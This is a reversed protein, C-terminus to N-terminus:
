KELLGRPQADPALHDGLAGRSGSCPDIRDRLAAAALTACAGRRASAAQAAGWSAAVGRQSRFAKRSRKPGSGAPAEASGRQGSPFLPLQHPPKRPLCRCGSISGCPWNFISGRCGAAHDRVGNPRWNRDRSIGRVLGEEGEPRRPAASAGAPLPGFRLRPTGPALALAPTFRACRSGRSSRSDALARRPARARTAPASRRMQTGREPSHVVRTGPAPASGQM